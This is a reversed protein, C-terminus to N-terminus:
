LGLAMRKFDVATPFGQLVARLLGRRAFSEASERGLRIEAGSPYAGGHVLRSRLGYLEALSKAVAQREDVTEALFHGGHIRFRYGLDGHRAEEDYPLLLSELAIVFDLVSDADSSRSVGLHYRHLALDHASAPNGTEYKELKKVIERIAAVDAEGIISWKRPQRHLGLSPRGTMPLVWSPYTQEKGSRGALSYGHLELALLWRHILPGMIPNQGMRPTSYCVELACLPVATFAEIVTSGIGWEESIDGQETESLRRVTIQNTIHLVPVSMDLGALPIVARYTLNDAMAVQLVESAFRHEAEPTPEQLNPLAGLHEFLAPLVLHHLTWRPADENYSVASQNGDILHGGGGGLPSFFPLRANTMHTFDTAVELASAAVENTLLPALQYVPMDARPSLINRQVTSTFTSPANPEDPERTVSLQKKPVTLPWGLSRARNAADGAVALFLNALKDEM